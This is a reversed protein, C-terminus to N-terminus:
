SKGDKRAYTYRYLAPGGGERINERDLIGRRWLQGMMSSYNSMKAGERDGLVAMVEQCTAGGLERVAEIIEASVTGKEPMRTERKPGGPGRSRVRRESGNLESTAMATIEQRLVKPLGRIMSRLEKRQDRIETALEMASAVRGLIKM